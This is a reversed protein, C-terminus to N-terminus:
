RWFVRKITAFFEAVVRVVFLEKTIEEWFGNIITHTILERFRNPINKKSSM